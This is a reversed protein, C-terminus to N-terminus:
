EIGGVTCRALRKADAEGGRVDMVAETSVLGIGVQEEDAIEACTKVDRQVNELLAHRITDLLRTLRDFFGGAIEAVAEEFGEDDGSLGVGDQGGVGHVILGLSDHELQKSTCPCFTEAGDVGDHGYWAALDQAREEGNAAGCDLGEEGFGALGPTFVTRVGVDEVGAVADPVLEHREQALEVGADVLGEAIESSQRSRFIGMPLLRECLQEGLHKKRALRHTTSPSGDAGDGALGGHGDFEITKAREVHGRPAANEPGGGPLHARSEGKVLGLSQHSQTAKGRACGTEVEGSVQPRLAGGPLQAEEARLTLQLRRPAFGSSLSRREQLIWDCM